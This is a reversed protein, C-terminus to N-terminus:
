RRWSLYQGPCYVLITDAKGEVSVKQGASNVTEQPRLITAVPKFATRFYIDMGNSIGGQIGGSHNTRTVIKGDRNEFIDNHTSGRMGAGHFRKGIEFGKAANISSCPRGSTLM